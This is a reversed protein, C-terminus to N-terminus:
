NAPINACVCTDDEPKADICESRMFWTASGNNQLRLVYFRMGVYITNDHTSVISNPHLHLAPSKYVTQLDNGPTLKLISGLTAILLSGDATPTAASPASDLFMITTLQGPAASAPTYSSIAGRNITMHAVGTLILIEKGRPVLAHVNESSLQSTKSCDTNTWWLGGGWEGNDLGVLWGDEVAIITATGLIQKPLVMDPPFVPAAAKHARTDTITLGDAHLSVRWENRSNNPCDLIRPPTTEIWGPPMGNPLAQVPAAPNPSLTLITLLALRNM